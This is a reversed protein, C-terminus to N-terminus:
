PTQLIAAFGIMAANDGTYKLHPKFLPKAISKALNQRLLLNASVGGSLGITKIGGQKYAKKIQRTLQEVVMSQISIALKKVFVLKSINLNELAKLDNEILLQIEGMKLYEEYKYCNEVTEFDQALYRVQTKLGSFSLDYSDKPQKLMGRNLEYYNMDIVGAIKALSVGGPYKLGLMRATKDFCEGAADDLTKGIINFEGRGWAEKSEIKITQSNGGSVLLHLHPFIEDQNNESYNELFSSAIHGQLHNVNVILLSKGTKLTVFHSIAKAEEIGVKLASALGPTTTVAIIDLSAFLEDKSLRKLNAVELITQDLVSIINTAHLRAGIEPVVGGYESHIDIQSSVKSSLVVTQSLKEYFNNTDPYELIAISTDDCSTEIALCLM